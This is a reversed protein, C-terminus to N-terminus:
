TATRHGMEDRPFIALAIGPAIEFEAYGPNEEWTTTLGPVDKSFRYAGSRDSVLLRVHTLRM